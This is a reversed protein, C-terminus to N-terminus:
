YEEEDTNQNLKAEEAEAARKEKIKKRNRFYKFLCLAIIASGLVWVIIRVTTVNVASAKEVVTTLEDMKTKCPIEGQVGKQIQNKM